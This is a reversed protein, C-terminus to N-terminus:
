DMRIRLTDTALAPLFYGGVEVLTGNELTLERVKSGNAFVSTLEPLQSIANLGSNSINTQSVNLYRLHRLNRLAEISEDTINTNDIYLKQLHTMESLWSVNAETFTQGSLRLRVIHPAIKKLSTIHLMSLSDVNVFNIDFFPSGEGVALAIVGLNRLASVAVESIPALQVKPLEDAINKENEGIVGNSEETLWKKIWSIIDAHRENESIVQTFADDTKVWHNLIALESSTLSVSASPPMHKKDTIPLSIRRALLGMDQHDRLTALLSQKSKGAAMIGAPTDLQLKGKSKQEGHCQVCKHDLIVRVIDEYYHISDFSVFSPKPLLSTKAPSFSLFDEGHTLAGGKHGTITLLILLVISGRMALRDFRNHLSALCLLAVITMAIGYYMHQDVADAGYDGGRSLLYGTICAIIAFLVGIGYTFILTDKFYRFRELRSLWQVGIAFLLIGIPLHLVVVHFRGIWEM